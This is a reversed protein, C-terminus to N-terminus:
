KSKHKQQLILIMSLVTPCYVVASSLVVCIRDAINTLVGCVFVMLSAFAVVSLLVITWGWLNNKMYIKWEKVTEAYKITYLTIYCMTAWIYKPLLWVLPAPTDAQHRVAISFYDDLVSFATLELVLYLAIQVNRSRNCYQHM